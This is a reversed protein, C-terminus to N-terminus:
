RRFGPAFADAMAEPNRIGQAREWEIALRLSETAEGGGTLAALRRRAAALFPYSENEEFHKVAARLLRVAQENDGRQHALTARMLQAQPLTWGVKEKELKAANWEAARRLPAPDKAHLAGALAAFGYRGFCQSRFYQSATLESRKMQPWISHFREWAAMGSGEYLDITTQAHLGMMSPLSLEGGTWDRLAEHITQRAGRPDDQALRAYPGIYVGINTLSMVDGRERAGQVV